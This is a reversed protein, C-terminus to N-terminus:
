QGLQRDIHAGDHPGGKHPRGAREQGRWLSRGRRDRDAKDAMAQKFAASISAAHRTEVLYEAYAGVQRYVTIM